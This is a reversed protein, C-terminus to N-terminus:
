RAFPVTGDHALQQVLHRIVDRRQREVPGSRMFVIEPGISDSSELREDLRVAIGLNPDDHERARAPREAGPEVDGLLRRATPEPSTPPLGPSNSRRSAGGITSCLTSVGVTHERLPPAAPYPM